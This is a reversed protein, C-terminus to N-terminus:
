IFGFEKRFSRTNAVYNNIMNLPQKTKQFSFVVGAQLQQSRITLMVFSQIFSITADDCYRHTQYSVQSFIKVRISICFWLLLWLWCCKISGLPFNPKAITAGFLVLVVFWADYDISFYSTHSLHISSTYVVIYLIVYLIALHEYHKSKM